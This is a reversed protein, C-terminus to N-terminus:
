DEFRANTIADAIALLEDLRDVEHDYSSGKYEAEADVAHRQITIMINLQKAAQELTREQPKTQLLSKTTTEETHNM